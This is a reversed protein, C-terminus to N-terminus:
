RVLMHRQGTILRRFQQAFNELLAPVAAQTTGDMDLLLAPLSAQAV